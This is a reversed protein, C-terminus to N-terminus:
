RATIIQASYNHYYRLHTPDVLPARLRLFKNVSHVLKDPLPYDIGQCDNTQYLTETNESSLTSYIINVSVEGYLMESAKM